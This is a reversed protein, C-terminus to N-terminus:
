KNKCVAAYAALEATGLWGSVMTWLYAFTRSITTPESNRFAKLGGYPISVLEILDGTEPETFTAYGCRKGEFMKYGYDISTDTM